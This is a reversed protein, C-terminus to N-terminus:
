GKRRDLGVHVPNIGELEKTLATLFNAALMGDVLRHDYSLSVYMMHRPIIGGNKIVPRQQIAGVGLIAVEPQSIVALGILTNGSGMNTITFTGGQLEDPVLKGDRARTALDNIKRQLGTITMSEADRVKPVVLGNDPLAVAIGMNVYNHLIVEDGNLRANVVPYQMLARAAAWAIFSTFTLSQGYAKKFEDKVAERIEWCATMDVEHVSYVHAATDLSDRMHSAIKKRMFNLKQVTVRAPDLGLAELPKKEGLGSVLAPKSGAAPAAAPKAPAPAAASPQSAPAPAAQVPATGRSTLYSLLDVKTVRGGQGSGQLAKLEGLTVGKEKSIRRVLPSFFHHGARRPIDTTADAGSVQIPAPSAPAAPSAAMPKPSPSSPAPAAPSAAAGSGGIRAIVSGVAVTQDPGVLIETLIGSAPSPVETDVKDTAIELLIQDKEVRDGVKVKWAIVTGEQVSEGMKPMVMDIAPGGSQAPAPAQAPSPAAPAPAAAPPAKTPAPAPASPAAATAGAADSIRAIVSGVAVTEDANVLIETVVGSAPSPVETDVKDTAIDLLIQDKEVRDGPKVKWGIVTGEQVSEGMKPMVMEITAMTKDKPWAPKTVDDPNM